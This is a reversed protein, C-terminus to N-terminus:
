GGVVTAVAINTGAYAATLRFQVKVTHTGATTSWYCDSTGAIQAAGSAVSGNLADTPAVDSDIVWRLEMNNNSGITYSGSLYIKGNPTYVSVTDLTNWGASLAPDTGTSLGGSQTKVNAIDVVNTDVQTGLEQINAKATTSDTLVTGTYSGMDTAQESIGVATTLDDVNADLEKFTHTTTGDYYCFTKSTTNYWFRGEWLDDGTPDAGLLELKAHELEGYVKM